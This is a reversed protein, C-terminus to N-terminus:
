ESNKLNRTVCRPLIQHLILLQTNQYRQIYVVGM